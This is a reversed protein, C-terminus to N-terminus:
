QVPQKADELLELLQVSGTALFSIRRNDFLAATSTPHIVVAGLDHLRAMEKDLDPVTFCLHVERNKHFEEEHGPIPEVIEMLMDNPMLLLQIRAQQAQDEVVNGIRKAGMWVEFLPIAEAISDVVIGVHHLIM